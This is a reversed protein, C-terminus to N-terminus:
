QTKENSNSSDTSEPSNTSDTSGTSDQSSDQPSDQPSGQPDNLMRLDHQPIFLCAIFGVGTIGIFAYFMVRFAQMYYDEAIARLNEPLDKVENVSSPANGALLSSLTDNGSSQALDTIRNQFAVGAIAIGLSLGIQRIYAQTATAIGIDERRIRTQLSILFSNFNFGVPIGFLAPYLVRRATNSHPTLTSLLGLFATTLALGGIMMERYRGTKSIVYGGVASAIGMLMAEPLVYVSAMIPSAGYVSQFIFPLYYVVGMFSVAHFFSAILSAARTQNCFLRPPMIPEKPVLGEYIFFGIYLVAAVVLFAIIIASDWPHTTGGWDFALLLLCTAGISLIMGIWDIRLLKQKFNTSDGHTQLKLLFFMAVFSVGGIPVNLLFCWRWQGVQTLAGGILPGVGNAIMWTSGIFGMFLGRQHLPILDSIVIEILTVVGGSGLGQVVRAGILMNMSQAAGAIASGIVFLLVSGLLCTKRGFIDAMKGIVTMVSASALIYATGIWTYGNASNVAASIQPLSATVVTQELAVIFLVLSLVLGLFCRQVLSMPSRQLQGPQGAETDVAATDRTDGTDGPDTTTGKGDTSDVM